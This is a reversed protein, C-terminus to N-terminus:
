LSISWIVQYHPEIDRLALSHLLHFQLHKKKKKHYDNLQSFLRAIYMCLNSIVYMCLLYVCM